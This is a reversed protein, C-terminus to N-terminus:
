IGDQIGFAGVWENLCKCLVYEIGFVTNHELFIFMPFVYCRDDHLVCNQTFSLSFLVWFEACHISHFPSAWPATLYFLFMVLRPFTLLLLLHQFSLSLWNPFSFTRPGPSCFYLCLSPSPRWVTLHPQFVFSLTVLPPNSLIFLVQALSLGSNELSLFQNNKNCPFYSDM